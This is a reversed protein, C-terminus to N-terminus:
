VLLHLPDTSLICNRALIHVLDHNAELAFSNLFVCTFKARAAASLGLLPKALDGALDIVTVRPNPPVTM